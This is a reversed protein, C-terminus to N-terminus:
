GGKLITNGYGQTEPMPMIEKKYFKTWTSEQSWQGMKLIDQVSVAMKNAYSSSAGRYSHAKFQNTDVGSLRLIDKLWRAITSTSAPKHPRRYTIILKHENTLSARRKLYENLTAFICLKSNKPFAHYTTSTGIYSPRSHKLLGTPHFAYSSDTKTMSQTNYSYITNVRSSSLLM